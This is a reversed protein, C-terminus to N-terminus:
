AGCPCGCPWARADVLGHVPSCQRPTIAARGTTRKGSHKFGPVVGVHAAFAGASGFRAPDDVAAISRAASQPGIGDITTLPKGVKHTNLREKKM